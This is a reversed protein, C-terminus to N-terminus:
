GFCTGSGGQCLGLRARRGLLVVRSWLFGVERGGKRRGGERERKEKAGLKGRQGPRGVDNKGDKWGSSEDYGANVCRGDKVDRVHLGAEREQGEPGEERGEEGDVAGGGALDAVLVRVEHADAALEDLAGVQGHLGLARVRAHHTHREQRKQRKKGDCHFMISVTTRARHDGFSLECSQLTASSEVPVPMAPLIWNRRTAPVVVVPVLPVQETRGGGKERGEGTGGARSKAVRFRSERVARLDLDVGDVAASRDVDGLAAELLRELREDGRATDAGAGDGGGAPARAAVGLDGDRM